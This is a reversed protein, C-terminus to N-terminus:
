FSSDGDLLTPYWCANDRLKRRLEADPTMFFFPSSDFTRKLPRYQEFQRRFSQTGGILELIYSGKEKAEFYAKRFLADAIIPDDGLVFCDIIQHRILSIKATEKRLSILYGMLKGNERYVFLSAKDNVSMMDIYWRLHEQDRYAMLRSDQSTKEAWLVDFMDRIDGSDLHSVRELGKSRIRSLKSLIKDAAPFLFYLVAQVLSTMFRNVNLKKLASSIFWRSDLVWYQLTDYTPDPLACGGFSEFIRATPKIATTVLYIDINEQNFYSQSLLPVQARYSKQVAWRSAVAVNMDRGAFRYKRLSTGFFGVIQESDELVWGLTGHQEPVPNTDIYRSWKYFVEQETFGSELGLEQILRIIAHLDSPKAERLQAIM